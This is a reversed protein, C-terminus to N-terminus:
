HSLESTHEESRSTFFWWQSTGGLGGGFGHAYVGLVATAVLIRLFNAAAPGVHSVSRAATVSSLAFFFTALMAPTM